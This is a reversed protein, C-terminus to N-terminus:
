LGGLVFSIRDANLNATLIEYEINIEYSLNEEDAVVDINTISVRPEWFAIEDLILNGIRKATIKDIPEFLMQELGAGFEPIMRRQMKNTLLINRLSNKIALNNIEKGLDHTTRDRLFDKNIDSYIETQAM